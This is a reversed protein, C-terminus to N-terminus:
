ILLCVYNCFSLGHMLFNVGYVCRAISKHLGSPRINQCMCCLKAADARKIFLMDDKSRNLIERPKFLSSHTFRMPYIFPKHSLYFFSKNQLVHIQARETSFCGSIFLFYLFYIWLFFALFRQSTKQNFLSFYPFSSPLPPPLPFTSHFHFYIDTYVLSWLGTKWAPPRSFLAVLGV